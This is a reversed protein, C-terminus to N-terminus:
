AEAVDQSLSDDLNQRNFVREVSSLVEDSVTGHARLFSLIAAPDKHGLVLTYVEHLERSAAHRKLHKDLAAEVLELCCSTVLRGLSTSPDIVETGSLARKVLLLGEINPTTSAPVVPDAPTATSPDWGPPDDWSWGLKVALWERERPNPRTGKRWTAVTAASRSIERALMGDSYDNDHMWRALTQGAAIDRAYNKM